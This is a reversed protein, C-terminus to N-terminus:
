GPTLSTFLFDRNQNSFGVSTVLDELSVIAQRLAATVGHGDSRAVVQVEDVLVSVQEVLLAALQLLLLHM